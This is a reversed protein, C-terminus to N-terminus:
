RPWRCARHVAGVVLARSGPRRAVAELDHPQLRLAARHPLHQVARLAARAARRDARLRGAAGAPLAMRRLAAAGRRAAALTSRTWGASCRGAWCCRRASPWSLLGFRGKALTYDAAKQHAPLTVIRQSRPRCPPATRRWTACRGRRWGSSSWCRRRVLAAAFLVATLALLTCGHTSTYTSLSLAAAQAELLGWSAVGAIALWRGAQGAAVLVQDPDVQLHGAQIGSVSRMMSIATTTVSAAGSAHADFARHERDVLAVGREVRHVGPVLARVALLPRISRTFAEVTSSASASACTM